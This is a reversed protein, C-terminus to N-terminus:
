SRRWRLYFAAELRDTLGYELETQLVYRHGLV